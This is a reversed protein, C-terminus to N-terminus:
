EWVDDRGNKIRGTAYQRIAAAMQHVTRTAFADSHQGSTSRKEIDAIREDTLQSPDQNQNNMMSSLPMAQREQYMAAILKDQQADTLTDTAPLTNLFMEVSMRENMTKEYDQFVSYDQAGLLDQIKKDYDAKIAKSDEVAQKRDSDPGGSMMVMASDVLAMQRDSLLEKLADLREPPLNLYKSLSGYQRDLAVKQQARVMEKMGPDKMMKALGAFFNNTSGTSAGAQAQPPLPEPPAGAPETPKAETPAKTHEPKVVPVPIAVSSKQAVATARAQEKLTAIEQRQNVVIAILGAVAAGLVLPLLVTWITRKM